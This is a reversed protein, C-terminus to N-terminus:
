RRGKKKPTKRASRPLKTESGITGFIQASFLDQDQSFQHRMRHNATLDAIQMKLEDIARRKEDADQLTEARITALLDQSVQQAQLLRQSTARYGAEQAQASLLDRSVQEVETRLRLIEAQLRDIEVRETDSLTSADVQEATLAARLRTIESEYYQAQDELASQLLVEYEEGIMTAKKPPSKENSQPIRAPEMTGILSAEVRSASQHSQAFPLASPCELLDVRHAFEGGVYDWIRLTALELSYPHNTEACHRAAHKNSYRGCGVFGCTMCVWLTEQMACDHCFVRDRWYTQIVQCCACARSSSSWPRLLQQRPCADPPCFKSCLDANRPKFLGLRIPDIRHLCVPCIPIDFSSHQQINTGLSNVAAPSAVRISSILLIKLIHLISDNYNSQITQGNTAELLSSVSQPRILLIDSAAFQQQNQLRIVTVLNCHELASHITSLLSRGTAIDFSTISQTRAAQQQTCQPTASSGCLHSSAEFHHDILSAPVFLAAILPCQEHDDCNKLSIRVTEANIWSSEGAHQNTLSYNLRQKISSDGFSEPVVIELTFLSM